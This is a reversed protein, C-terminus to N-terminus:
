LRGSSARSRRPWRHALTAAAVDAMQHEPTRTTRCPSAIAVAAADAALLTTIYSARIRM